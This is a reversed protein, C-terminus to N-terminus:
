KDNSTMSLLAQKAAVLWNVCTDRENDEHAKHAVAIATLFKRSKM